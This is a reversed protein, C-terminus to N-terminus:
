FLANTLDEIFVFLIAYLWYWETTALTAGVKRRRPFPVFASFTLSTSM